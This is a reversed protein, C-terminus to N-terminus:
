VIEFNFDDRKDSIYGHWENHVLGLGFVPVDTDSSSAENLQLETSYIQGVM